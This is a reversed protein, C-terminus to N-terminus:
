QRRPSTGIQMPVTLTKFEDIPTPLAVRMYFYAFAQALQEKYPSLLRLRDGNSEVMQKMVNRPISYSTGLDVIQIEKAFDPLDCVNLMYYRYLRGLRIENMLRLIAKTNSSPQSRRIEEVFDSYSIVPCLQVFEIKKNELDCSQSIIIVDHIETVGQAEFRQQNTSASFVAEVPIYTPILVNCNNIFDGQELEENGAVIGYWPYKQM